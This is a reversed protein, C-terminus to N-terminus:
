VMWSPDRRSKQTSHGFAVLRPACIGLERVLSHVTEWLSLGEGSRCAMTIIHHPEVEVKLVAKFTRRHTLVVADKRTRRHTLVVADRPTRRHTLVVANGGKNPRYKEVRRPVEM